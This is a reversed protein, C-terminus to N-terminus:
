KRYKFNTWFKITESLRCLNSTRKEIFIQKNRLQLKSNTQPQFNPGKSPSKCAFLIGRGQLHCHQGTGPCSPGSPNPSGLEDCLQIRPTRDTHPLALTGTHTQHKTVSMNIGLWKKLGENGLERFM